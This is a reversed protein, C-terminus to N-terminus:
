WVLNRFTSSWMARASAAKVSSCWPRREESLRIIAIAACVEQGAYISADQYLFIPKYDVDRILVKGTKAVTIVVSGTFFPGGDLAYCKNKIRPVSHSEGTIRNSPLTGSWDEPYKLLLPTM